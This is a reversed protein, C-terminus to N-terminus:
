TTEDEAIGAPAPLITEGTDCARGAALRNM